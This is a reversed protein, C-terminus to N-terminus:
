LDTREVQQALSLNLKCVFLFGYVTSPDTLVLPPVEPACSPKLDWSDKLKVGCTSSGTPGLAAGRGENKKKPVSHDVIRLFFLVSKSNEKEIKKQFPYLPTLEGLFVSSRPSLPLELDPFFLRM